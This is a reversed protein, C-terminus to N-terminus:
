DIYDGLHAAAINIQVAADAVQNAAFAIDMAKAWAAPKTGNFLPYYVNKVMRVPLAQIPPPHVPQPNPLQIVPQPNPLQIVQDDEENESDPANIDEEEFYRNDLEIVINDAEIEEESETNSGESEPVATSDNGSGESSSSEPNEIGFEVREQDTLVNQPLNDDNIGISDRAQVTLRDDSNEVAQDFLNVATNFLRRGLSLQQRIVPTSHVPNPTPPYDVPQIASIQYQEQEQQRLYADVETIYNEELAETLDHVEGVVTDHHEYKITRALQNFEAPIRWF